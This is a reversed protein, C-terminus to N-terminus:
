SDRLIGTEALNSATNWPSGNHLRRAGDIQWNGAPVQAGNELGGQGHRKSQENEPDNTKRMDIGDVIGGMIDAV